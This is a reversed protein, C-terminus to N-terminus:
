AENLVKEILNWFREASKDWSFEKVRELGRNIYDVRLKEDKSVSEM